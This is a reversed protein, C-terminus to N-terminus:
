VRSITGEWSLGGKIKGNKYIPYTRSKKYDAYFWTSSWVDERKVAGITAGGTYAYICGIKSVKEDMTKILYKRADILNTFTKLEGKADMVPHYEYNKKYRLYYKM